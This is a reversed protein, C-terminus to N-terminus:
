ANLCRGEATESEIGNIWMEPKRTVSYLFTGRDLDILIAQTSWNQICQLLLIGDANHVVKYSVSGIGGALNPAVTVEAIDDHLVIRFLVPRSERAVHVFKRFPGNPEDQPLFGASAWREVTCQIPYQSSIKYPVFDEQYMHEFEKPGCGCLFFM